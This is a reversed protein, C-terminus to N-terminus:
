KSKLEILRLEILDHFVQEAIKLNGFDTHHNNYTKELPYETLMSDTDIFNYMNSVSDILLSHPRKDNLFFSEMFDVNPLQLLVFESNENAVSNSFSELIHFMVFLGEESEEIRETHRVPKDFFVASFAKYTLSWGFFRNKSLPRNDKFYEYESLESDTFNFPLENLDDINYSSVSMLALSDGSQYYKPKIFPLGTYLYYNPRYVNLNRWFNELQFGFVVIDLNYERGLNLYRIYAQDMGFGSVGFNIVEADIGNKILIEQLHYALSEDFYVGDSHTFSDGFLGIRVTSDEKFKEYDIDARIGDSNSVFLSDRFVGNKKITWGTEKDFSFYNSEDINSTLETWYADDPYIGLNIYFGRIDNFGYVWIRFVIEIILLSIFLLYFVYFAKKIM